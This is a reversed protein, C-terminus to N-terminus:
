GSFHLMDALPLNTLIFDALITECFILIIGMILKLPLLIVAARRYQLTQEGFYERKFVANTLTISSTIWPGLALLSCFFSSILFMFPPDAFGYNAIFMRSWFFWIRIVFYIGIYPIEAFWVWILMFYAYVVLLEARFQAYPVLGESFWTVFYFLAVWPTSIVIIGEFNRHFHHWAAPHKNDVRTILCCVLHILLFLFMLWPPLLHYVALICTSAAIGILIITTLGENFPKFKNSIHKPVWWPQSEGNM